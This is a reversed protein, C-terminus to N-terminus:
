IDPNLLSVLCVNWYLLVFTRSCGMYVGIYTCVSVHCYFLFLTRSGSFPLSLCPGILFMISEACAACSPSADVSGIELWLLSVYRYLWEVCSTLSDFIGSLCCLSLCGLSSVLCPHSLSFFHSLFVLVLSLCLQSWVLLPSLEPLRAQIEFLLALSVLSLPVQLIQNCKEPPVNWLSMSLCPGLLSLFWISTTRSNPCIMGSHSRSVFVRCSLCPGALTPLVLSLTLTGTSIPVRWLSLSLFSYRYKTASAGICLFLTIHCRSTFSFVVV